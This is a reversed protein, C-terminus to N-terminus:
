NVSEFSQVAGLNFENQFINAGVSFVIKLHSDGVHFKKVNYFTVPSLGVEPKFDVKIDM